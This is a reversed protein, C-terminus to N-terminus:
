QDVNQAWTLNNSVFNSKQPSTLVDYCYDFVIYAAEATTRMQDSGIATTTTQGAPPPWGNVAAAQNVNMAWTVAASCDDGRLAHKWAICIYDDIGSPSPDCQVP